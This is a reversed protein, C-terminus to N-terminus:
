RGGRGGGGGGGRGGRGRGQNRIRGLMGGFDSNGRSFSRSVAGGPPIRVSLQVYDKTVINATIIGSSRGEMCMGSGYGLIEYEVIATAGNDMVGRIYIPVTGALQTMQAAYLEDATRQLDDLDDTLVLDRLDEPIAAPVLFPDVRGFGPTQLSVTEEAGETKRAMLEAVDFQDLLMITLKVPDSPVAEEENPNAPVLETEDEILFGEKWDGAEEAPVDEGADGEAVSEDGGEGTQQAMAPAVSWLLLMCVALFLYARLRM